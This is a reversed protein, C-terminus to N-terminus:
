NESPKEIHDIVLTDVPGRGAELRLGLEDQLAVFISPAGTPDAATSPGKNLRISELATGERSFKVHIDFRGTIGTKDIVPRDVLLSLVKSFEDLTSGLAEVSSAIGNIMSGCIKEGPKLPPPPLTWPTCSGESYPQLKPRGRAVTLFYVPGESTERHIKLQFRDELLKQMMPGLMMPVTPNGEARANIDYSASRIWSPGGTIPTPDRNRNLHGDAYSTYANGMLNLLEACDTALRGPSSNPAPGNLPESCPKISAAEFRPTNAPAFQAQSVPAILVGIAIPAVLAALGIIALAARCPGSLEQAISGAIITRLRRKVDGGSVGSVCALPSATHFRCVKLIGELYDAPECGMRLVEEDCALEREEVLRSGVWWVLPHFWFIAEVAMHVAAFLNDRRRVHCLEHTLIAGLQRPSLHEILEAPLILVPRLFGVIGPEATGPTILSRIPISLEVPTSARLAARLRLWGRWRALLIAFCGFAWAVAITVPMWNMANHAPRIRRPAPPFPSAIQVATASFVPAVTSAANRSPRPVVSGLSMLLAFPILFKASSSLWVWYRIRPSNNRLAFAVLGAVLVFGSSQWLHNLVFQTSM